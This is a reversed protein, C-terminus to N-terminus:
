GKHNTAIQMVRRLAHFLTARWAKSGAQADNDVSAVKKANRCMQRPGPIGTKNIVLVNTINLILIHIVPM